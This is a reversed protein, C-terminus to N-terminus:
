VSSHRTTTNSFSSPPHAFSGCRNVPTLRRVASILRSQRCVSALPGVPASGFSSGNELRSVNSDMVRTIRWALWGISPHPEQILEAPTLDPVTRHLSDYVRTFADLLIASQPM